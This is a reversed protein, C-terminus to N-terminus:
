KKDLHTKKFEVGKYIWHLFFTADEVEMEFEKAFEEITFKGVPHSTIYHAIKEATVADDLEYKAVIKKFKKHLDEM